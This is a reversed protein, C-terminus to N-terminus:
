YELLMHIHDIGDEKYIDSVQKFGFNEYFRKLYLQAGIKISKQAFNQAIYDIARVLLEKGYGDTRFDKHTCIRGLSARSEGKKSQYDPYDEFLRLTAVLRNDAWGLLHIAQDDLGDIDLYFCEQEVIFVDQRLQYMAEMQSASLKSFEIWQWQIKSNM